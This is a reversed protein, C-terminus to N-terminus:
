SALPLSGSEVGRLFFYEEKAWTKQWESTSSRSANVDGLVLASGASLTSPTMKAAELGAPSGTVVKFAAMFLIPGLAELACTKLRAGSIM